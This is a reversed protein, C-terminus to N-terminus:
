KTKVKKIVPLPGGEECTLTPGQYVNITDTDAEDEALFHFIERYLAYSRAIFRRQLPNECTGGSWGYSEDPQLGPTIYQKLSRLTEKAKLYDESTGNISMLINNMGVQGAAFRCCDEVCRAILILQTKNVELLYKQEKNGM